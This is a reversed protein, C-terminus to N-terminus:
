CPRGQARGLDECEHRGNGTKNVINWEVFKNLKKGDYLRQALHARKGSHEKDQPQNRIM